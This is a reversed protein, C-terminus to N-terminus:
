LHETGQKTRDSKAYKVWPREQACVIVGCQGSFPGFRGGKQLIACELGLVAENTPGSFIDPGTPYRAREKERMRWGPSGTYFKRLKCSPQLLCPFGGPSLAESDATVSHAQSPQRQGM